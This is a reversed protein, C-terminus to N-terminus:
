GLQELLVLSRPFLERALVLLRGSTYNKANAVRRAEAIQAWIPVDSFVGLVESAVTSLERVLALPKQFKELVASSTAGKM